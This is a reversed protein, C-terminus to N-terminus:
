RSKDARTNVEERKLIVLSLFTFCKIFGFHTFGLTQHWWNQDYLLSLSSGSSCSKEEECHRGHRNQWGITTSNLDVGKLCQTLVFLTNHITSQILKQFSSFIGHKLTKWYEQLAPHICYQQMISKFTCFMLLVKRITFQVQM